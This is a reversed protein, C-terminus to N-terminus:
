DDVEALVADIFDLIGAQDIRYVKDLSVCQPDGTCTIGVVLREGTPATWYHPGGSDGGGTGGNGTRPNMNLVLFAKELARFESYVFRRQGDGVTSVPPPFDLTSGYGVTLFEEPRGQVRLLGDKKLQDLFGAPALQAFPLAVVPEKLIILGVDRPDSGSRTSGGIIRPNFEPHTVVSEIELWSNPDFADWADFSVRFHDMTRLGQDIRLQIQWTAHGATLIVRPAILTGSVFVYPVEQNPLDLRPQIIVVSCVNNFQNATDIEGFTIAHTQSSMSVLLLTTAALLSACLRASSSTIKKNESTKM